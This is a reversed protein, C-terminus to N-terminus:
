NEENEQGQVEQEDPPAEAMANALQRQALRMQAMNRLKRKKERLKETDGTTIQVVGRTQKIEQMKLKTDLRIARKQPSSLTPRSLQQQERERLNRWAVMSPTDEDIIQPWPNFEAIAGVEDHAHACQMDAHETSQHFYYYLGVVKAWDSDKNLPICPEGKHRSLKWIDIYQLDCTLLYNTCALAYRYATQDEKRVPKRKRSAPAWRGIFMEIQELFSDITIFRGECQGFPNPMCADVYRMAAPERMVFKDTGPALLKIPSAPNIWCLLWFACWARVGCDDFGRQWSEMSPMRDNSTRILKEMAAAASQDAAVAPECMSHIYHLMLITRKLSDVGGVTKEFAVLSVCMHQSPFHLTAALRAFHDTDTAVDAAQAFKETLSLVLGRNTNVPPKDASPLIRMVQYGVMVFTGTLYGMFNWSRSMLTDAYNFASRRCVWSNRVLAVDRAADEIMQRESLREAIWDAITFRTDDHIDWIDALTVPIKRKRLCTGPIASPGRVLAIVRKFTRLRETAQMMSSVSVRSSEYLCFVTEVEDTNLDVGCEMATTYGLFLVHGGDLQDVISGVDQRERKPTDGSIILTKSLVLAARDADHTKLRQYVREKFKRLGVNQSSFVAVPRTLLEEVCWNVLFEIDPVFVMERDQVEAPPRSPNRWIWYRLKRGEVWERREYCALSAAYGIWLDEDADCLIRLSSNCVIKALVTDIRTRNLSVVNSNYDREATRVEDQVVIDFPIVGRGTVLLKGLSHLTTVYAWYAPAGQLLRKRVDPQSYNCVLHSASTGPPLDRDHVARQVIGELRAETRRALEVRPVIYVVRFGRTRYLHFALADACTTKGTGCRGNIFLLTHYAPDILQRPAIACEVNHFTRPFMGRTVPCMVSETRWFEDLELENSEVSKRALAERDVFPFADRGVPLVRQANFGRYRSALKEWRVRGGYPVLLIDLPIDEISLPGAPLEEVLSVGTGYWDTHLSNPKLDRPKFGPNLTGEVLYQGTPSFLFFVLTHHPEADDPAQHTGEMLHFRCWGQSTLVFVGRKYVRMEINDPTPLVELMRERLFACWRGRDIWAAVEQAGECFWNAHSLRARLHVDVFNAVQSVSPLISWVSYPHDTIDAFLNPTDAMATMAHRDGMSDVYFIPHSMEERNWSGDLHNKKAQLPWRLTTQKYALEDVVVEALVPTKFLKNPKKWWRFALEMQRFLSMRMQLPVVVAPFRVHASCKLVPTGADPGSSVVKAVVNRRGNVLAVPFESFKFYSMLFEQVHRIFAYVGDHFLSLVHTNDAPFQMDFDFVLRLGPYYSWGGAGLARETFSSPPEALAAHEEAKALMSHVVYDRMPALYLSLRHALPLLRGRVRTGGMCHCDSSTKTYPVSYSFAHLSDLLRWWAPEREAGTQLLAEREEQARQENADRMREYASEDQSNSLPQDIFRDNALYNDADLLEPRLDAGALADHFDFAGGVLDDGREDAEDM